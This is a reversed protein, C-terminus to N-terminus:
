ESEGHNRKDAGTVRTSGAPRETSRKEEDRTAVDRQLNGGERGQQQTETKDGLVKESDKSGDKSRHRDAM